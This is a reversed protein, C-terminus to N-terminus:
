SLKAELYDLLLRLAAEAFEAKNQLRDGMGVFRIATEKDRASLTIHVLGVPKGPVAGTPGAIGTMSVGVDAGFAARAGRAMERAAEESVAGHELLTARSVNLLREKSANSYAVVGGLFYRSSGAVNTIRHAVLGGTCSEALALTLRKEM